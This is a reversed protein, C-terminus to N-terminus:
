DHCRQKQDHVIQQEALWRDFDDTTMPQAQPKKKAVTVSVVVPQGNMPQPPQIPLSDIHSGQQISRNSEARREQQTLWDPDDTMGHEDAPIIPIPDTKNRTKLQSAIRETIQLAYDAGEAAIWDALEITKAPNVEAGALFTKIGSPQLMGKSCLSIVELVAERAFDYDHKELAEKLLLAMELAPNNTQEAAKAEAIAQETQARAAKRAERGEKEVERYTKFCEPCLDGEPKDGVFWGAQIFKKLIQKPPLQGGPNHSTVVKFKDCESCHAQWGRYRGDGVWTNGGGIFRKQSGFVRARFTM